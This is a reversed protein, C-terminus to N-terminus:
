KKLLFTQVVWGFIFMVVGLIFTNKDLLNPFNKFFGILIVALGGAQAIKALYYM